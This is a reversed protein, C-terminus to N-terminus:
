LDPLYGLSDRVADLNSKTKELRKHQKLDNIANVSDHTLLLTNISDYYMTRENMKQVFVSDRYEIEKFQKDHKDFVFYLVGAVILICILVPSLQKM